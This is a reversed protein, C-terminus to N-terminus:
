MRRVLTLDTFSINRLILYIAYLLVLIIKKNQPDLYAEKKEGERGSEARQAYLVHRGDASHIQWQMM